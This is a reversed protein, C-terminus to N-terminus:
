SNQFNTMNYIVTEKLKQIETIFNFCIGEINIDKTGIKGLDPHVWGGGGGRDGIKLSSLIASKMPRQTTFM